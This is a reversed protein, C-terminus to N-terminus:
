IFGVIWWERELGPGLLASTQLTGPSRSGKEEINHDLTLTVLVVYGFTIAGTM